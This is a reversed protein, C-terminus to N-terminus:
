KVLLNKMWNKFQNDNMNLFFPSCCMTIEVWLFMMNLDFRMFEELFSFMWRFSILMALVYMSKNRSHIFVNAIAYLFISFYILVGTLGLNTFINLIGVEIDYRMGRGEVEDANAFWKSYYGQSLSNGLLWYENDFASSLAEVYLFTRTDSALNETEGEEYASEVSVNLDIYQGIKFINFSGTVGLGFLVIPILILSISIFFFVYKHIFRKCLLFLSFIFSTLFRIVSSRSGMTGFLFVSIFAILCIIKGKKNFYPWYLIFFSFPFLFKAPCELQMIPLLFLFVILAYRIWIQCSRKLNSPYSFYYCVIPMLYLMSNNYLNKWDWYYEAKFVGYLIAFIIYALYLIIPIPLNIKTVNYNKIKNCFALLGLLKQNNKRNKYYYWLLIVKIKTVLVKHQEIAYFSFSYIYIALLFITEFFWWITTNGLKTNLWQNVSGITLFVLLFPIINHAVNNSKTM